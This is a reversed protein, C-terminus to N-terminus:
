MSNGCDGVACIEDVMLSPFQDEDLLYCVLMLVQFGGLGEESAPHAAEPDQPGCLFGLIEWEAIDRNPSEIAEM